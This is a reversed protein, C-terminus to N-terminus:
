LDVLGVDPRRLHVVELAVRALGALLQAPLRGDAERLHDALHQLGIESQFADIGLSMELCLGGGAGLRSRRAATTPAPRWRSTRISTRQRWPGLERRPM